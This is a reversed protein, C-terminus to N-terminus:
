RGALLGRVVPLALRAWEAYMAASPHLGDEILMAPQAGLERSVETIDVFAVGHAECIDRSAANFADLEKAIRRPSRLEARAFPTVGWDPISLIFVQRPNATALAVARQLLTTFCESYDNVNRGRYQDNVGILLSVVDWKGLPEAEDMAAALEDTTWGTKAIIRPDAIAFGEERLARALQMPWRANETVGEGISYSDGLALYSLSIPDSFM